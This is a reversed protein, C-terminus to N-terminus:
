TVTLEFSSLGLSDMLRTLDPTPWLSPLCSTSHPIFTKKPFLHRHAFRPAAKLFIVSGVEQECGQKETQRWAAQISGPSWFCSLLHLIQGHCWAPVTARHWQCFIWSIALPIKEKWSMIIDSFKRQKLYRPMNAPGSSTPPSGHVFPEQIKHGSFHMGSFLLMSSHSHELWPILRSDSDWIWIVTHGQALSRLGGFCLSRM